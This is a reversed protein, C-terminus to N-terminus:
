EAHRAVRELVVVGAVREVIVVVLAGAVVVVPPQSETSSFYLDSQKALCEWVIEVTTVVSVIVIEEQSGVKVAHGYVVDGRVVTVTL